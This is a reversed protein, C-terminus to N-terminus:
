GRRSGSSAVRRDLCGHSQSCRGREEGWGSYSRIVVLAAIHLCQLQHLWRCKFGNEIKGLTSQSFFSSGFFSPFLRLGIIHPDADHTAKTTWRTTVLLLTITIIRGYNRCLVSSNASFAIDKDPDLNRGAALDFPTLTALIKPMPSMEAWFAPCGLACLATLM